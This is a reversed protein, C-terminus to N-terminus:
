KSVEMGESFTANAFEGTTVGGGITMQQKEANYIISNLGRMEVVIANQIRGLSTTLSHGGTRAMFPIGRSRAYNVTRVVDREEAVKVGAIYGPRKYDTYRANVYEFGEDGEIVVEASPSLQKGLERQVSHALYRLESEDNDPFGLIQQLGNYLSHGDVSATENTAQQASTALVVDFTSLSALIAANFYQTRM